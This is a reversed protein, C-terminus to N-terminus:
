SKTGPYIGLLLLLSKLQLQSLLLLFTIDVRNLNLGAHLFTRPQLYQVNRTMALSPFNLSPNFKQPQVRAPGVM